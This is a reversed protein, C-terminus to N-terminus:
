TDNKVSDPERYREQNDTVSVDNDAFYYRLIERNLLRITDRHECRGSQQYKVPQRM